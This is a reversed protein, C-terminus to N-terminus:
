RRKNTSPSRRNAPSCSSVPLAPATATLSCLPASSVNPRSLLRAIVGSRSAWWAGVPCPGPAVGLAAWSVSTSCRCFAMAAPASGVWTACAGAAPAGWCRYWPAQGTCSSRGLRRRWRRHDRGRYNRLRGGFACIHRIRTGATGSM